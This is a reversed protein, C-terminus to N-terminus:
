ARVAWELNELSGKVYLWGSSADIPEWSFQQEKLEDLGPYQARLAKKFAEFGDRRLIGALPNIQYKTRGMTVGKGDIVLIHRNQMTSRLRIRHLGEGVNEWEAPDSPLPDAGTLVCDHGEITLDRKDALTIMERYVAGEPLLHITDGAEAMAVARRASRLPSDATGANQDSGIRHHVYIERGDASAAALLLCLCTWFSKM